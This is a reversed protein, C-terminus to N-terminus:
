LLLRQGRVQHEPWRPRQLNPLETRLVAMTPLTRAGERGPRGNGNFTHTLVLTSKINRNNLNDGLSSAM